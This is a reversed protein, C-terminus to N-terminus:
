ECGEECGPFCKRGQSMNEVDKTKPIEFDYKESIKKLIPAGYNQYNGEEGAFHYMETDGLLWLWAMMKTVSRITSIGRHNTVKEWAFGMYSKMESIVDKDTKHGRHVEDWNEKRAEKNVLSKEPDDSYAHAWDLYPILVENAFMSSFADKDETSKCQAVIEDQTRM